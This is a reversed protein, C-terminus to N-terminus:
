FNRLVTQMESPFRLSLTDRLEGKCLTGVGTGCAVLRKRAKSADRRPKGVLPGSASDICRHQTICSPSNSPSRRQPKANIPIYVNDAQKVKHITATFLSEVCLWVIDDISTMYANLLPAMSQRADRGHVRM